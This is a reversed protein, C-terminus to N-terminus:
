ILRSVAPNPRPVIEIFRQPAPIVMGKLILPAIGRQLLQFHLLNSNLLGREHWGLDCVAKMVLKDREGQLVPGGQSTPAPVACSAAYVQFIAPCVLVMGEDTFQVAAQPTNFPLTRHAVGESLWQMFDDALAQPTRTEIPPRKEGPRISRSARAPEVPRPNLNVSGIYLSSATGRGAPALAGAPSGTVVFTEPEPMPGVRPRRRVAPPQLAALTLSADGLPAPARALPLPLAVAPAPRAAPVPAAMPRQSGNVGKTAIPGAAPLPRVGGSGPTRPHPQPPRGFRWTAFGTAIAAVTSFVYVTTIDMKQGASRSLRGGSVLLFGRDAPGALQMTGSGAPAM